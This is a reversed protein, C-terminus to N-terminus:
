PELHEVISASDVLLTSTDADPHMQGVERRTLHGIQEDVDHVERATTVHLYGM